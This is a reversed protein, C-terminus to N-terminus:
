TICQRAIYTHQGVELDHVANQSQLLDSAIANYKSQQNALERDLRECATQESMKAQVCLPNVCSLWESVLFCLM